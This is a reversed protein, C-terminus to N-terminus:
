IMKVERKSEKLADREGERWREREGERERERSLPPFSPNMVNSLFDMYPVTHLGVTGSYRRVLSCHGM